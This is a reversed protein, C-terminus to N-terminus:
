LIMALKQNNSVSGSICSGQSLLQLPYLALAKLANMLFDFCHFSTGQLHPMGM